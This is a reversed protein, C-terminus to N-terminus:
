VAVAQSHLNAWCYHLHRGLQCLGVGACINLALGCVQVSLM